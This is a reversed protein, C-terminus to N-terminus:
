ALRWGLEVSIYKFHAAYMLRDLLMPELLGQIAVGVPAEVTSTDLSVSEVSVVDGPVAWDPLFVTQADFTGTLVYHGGVDAFVEVDTTAVPAPAPVPLADVIDNILFQTNDEIDAKLKRLASDLPNPSVTIAM